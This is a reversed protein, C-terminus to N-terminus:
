ALRTRIRGALGRYFRDAVRVLYHGGPGGRVGKELFYYRWGAPHRPDAGWRGVVRSGSVTVPRPHEAISEGAEGTRYHDGWVDAAATQSAEEITEAIAARAAQRVRNAVQPGNWRLGAM